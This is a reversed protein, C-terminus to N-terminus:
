VHARGIEKAMKAGTNIARHKGGNKIYHYIIPFLLNEKQWQGVLQWLDDTSGDDIILWEFAFCTQKLLSQYLREM